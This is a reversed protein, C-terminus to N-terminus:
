ESKIGTFTGEGLESVSYTVKGKMTKGEVKGKIQMKVNDTPIVINVQDGKYSGTLKSEGFLGTYTGTILTDNEQKLVLVPDGSGANTEVHLKWTGTLISQQKQFATLIIGTLMLAALISIPKIKKMPNYYLIKFHVTRLFQIIEM